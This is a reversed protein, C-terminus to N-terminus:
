SGPNFTGITLPINEGIKTGLVHKFERAIAEINSERRQWRLVLIPQAGGTIVSLKLAFSRSELGDYPETALRFGVPLVDTSRAEVDEMASRASGTATVDSTSETKSSIKMKRIAAVARVLSGEGTIDSPFDAVLFDNWDELWETIKTQDLKVGDIGQVARYAATPQMTLTANWDGHGPAPVTGLNFFMKAAMKDIDVFGVAGYGPTPQAPNCSQVYSAFDDISTTSLAGRYRDREDKFKELTQLTQGAELVIGSIGNGNVQILRKGAAEVATNQLLQIDM